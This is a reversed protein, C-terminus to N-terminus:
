VDIKILPKNSYPAIYAPKFGLSNLSRNLQLCILLALATLPVKDTMWVHTTQQLLPFINLKRYSWTSCCHTAGCHITLKIVAFYKEEPVVKLVAISKM